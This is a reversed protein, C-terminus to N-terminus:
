TYFRPVWKVVKRHQWMHRWPNWDVTSTVEKGTSPTNQPRPVHKPCFCVFTHTHTHTHTHTRAHIYTTCTRDHTWRSCTNQFKTYIELANYVCSHGSLRQVELFASHQVNLLKTFKIRRRINNPYGVWPPHSPRPTYCAPSHYIRVSNQGCIISPFYM